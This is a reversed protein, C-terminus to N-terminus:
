PIRDAVLSFTHDFEPEAPNEIDGEAVVMGAKCGEARMVGTPDHTIPDREDSFFAVHVVYPKSPQNVPLGVIPGMLGSFDGQLGSTSVLTTHYGVVNLTDDLRDTTGFIRDCDVPEGFVDLPYFIRLYASRVRGQSGKVDFGVLMTGQRYEGFEDREAVATCGGPLCIQDVKYYSDDGGLCELQTCDAEQGGGGNGGTGPKHGGENDSCAALALLAPVLIWFPRTM